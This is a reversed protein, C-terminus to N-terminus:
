RQEHTRWLEEPQQFLNWKWKGLLSLNFSNIDKVGLGGVEKSMCVTEWKVWAIKRQQQDGGWLFNRQIRVLEDVVKQPVRYFSLFYIPISTLVSKLLTVRGGFLLHRLKWKVLKRECKSIIPDWTQYRRPNAGIPVGLYTFPLTLLSCNLYNAAERKWAEMVGFAGFGSKAFNIKLGSALEFVRLMAKIAKVNAM